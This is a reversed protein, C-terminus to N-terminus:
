DLLSSYVRMTEEACKKWSFCEARKLGAASLDERIDPDLALKKMASSISETSSPDVYLAANHAVEPLCSANSVIVPCGCQMAELVPLGFGEEMSPFMLATSRSYLRVLEQESVGNSVVINSLEILDGCNNKFNNIHRAVGTLVLIFGHKRKVTEPLRNYSELLRELNKRPYASGVYFFYDSAELPLEKLTEPPDSCRRFGSGAAHPVVHLRKGTARYLSEVQRAIYYTPVIVAGAKGLMFPANSRFEKGAEEGDYEDLVLPFLDQVTLVLNDVDVKEAFPRTLHLIDLRRAHYRLIASRISSIMPKLSSGLAIPNPLVPKIELNPYIGFTSELNKKKSRSFTSFLIFHDEPFEQLLNIILAKSYTNIGSHGSLGSVDFGIRM